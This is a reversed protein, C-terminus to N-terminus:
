PFPGVPEGLPQILHLLCDSGAKNQQLEGQIDNSNSEPFLVSMEKLLIM